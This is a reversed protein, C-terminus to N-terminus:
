KSLRSTSALADFAGEWVTEVDADQKEGCEM